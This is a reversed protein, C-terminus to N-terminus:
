PPPIRRPIDIWASARVITGDPRRRLARWHGEVQTKGAAARLERLSLKLVRDPRPGRRQLKARKVDLEPIDHLSAKSPRPM